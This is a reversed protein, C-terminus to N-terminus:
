GPPDPATARLQSILTWAVSVLPVAIVAGVVGGLITGCAVAVVVVVPHLSVSRSMVLPQLVHGEFQGVLVILALVLLAIIPGRAALAVLTAVALAVPSGAIPVFSAFFVLLALPVALPVRLILLAVAVIAANSAAVILTGHAYGEFTKWAARLASDYRDRRGRPLQQLFWGWMRSGSNLFFVSCFLALLLGTLVEALTSAQGLVQSALAGRHSSLWQKAQDIAANIDAPKLHLPGRNLWDEITSVGQQLQNALTATQGAVSITIFTLLAVVAAIAGLLSIVVALPRPLARDLLDVLPRLVATIVLAGFLAVVVLVVKGLLIFAAYVAVGLVILRVAQAAAV